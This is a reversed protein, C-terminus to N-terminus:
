QVVISYYHKLIQDIFDANNAQLLYIKKNMVCKICNNLNNKVCAISKTKGNSFSQRLDKFINEIVDISTDNM